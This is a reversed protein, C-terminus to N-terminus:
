WAKDGSVEVFGQKFLMEFGITIRLSWLACWTVSWLSVIYREIIEQFSGRSEDGPSFPLYEVASLFLKYKVHVSNVLKLM